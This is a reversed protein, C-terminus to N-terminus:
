IVHSRFKELQREIFERLVLSANLDRKVCETRFERRTKRDIKINLLVLDSTNSTTMNTKSEKSVSM